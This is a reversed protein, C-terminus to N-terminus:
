GENSVGLRAVLESIRWPLKDPDHGIAPVHIEGAEDELQTM